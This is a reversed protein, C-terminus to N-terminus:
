SETLMIEQGTLISYGVLCLEPKRGFTIGKDQSNALYRLIEDIASFYDPGPNKAFHSVMSTAFMIDIRTKVMPYMISGIKTVYKTKKNFFVLKKYPILLTERILIKATKAKLMKQWDLLAEIYGLQSLKIIKQKCDCIAKFSIYFALPRMNVMDFAAALKEKIQKIIGSEAFVFINM